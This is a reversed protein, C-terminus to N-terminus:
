PGFVIASWRTHGSLTKITGTPATGNYRAQLKITHSGASTLTQNWQQFATVRVGNFHAEGSASLNTGDLAAAGIAVTGGAGIDINNDFQFDFTAAIYIKTNAYQTTFTLSSGTCDAFSATLTNTGTTAAGIFQFATSGIQDLDSAALKQGATFSM